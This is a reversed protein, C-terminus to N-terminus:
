HVIVRGRMGPHITCVYGYTGKRTFRFRYTGQSKTPSSKFRMRGRSAVNHPVSEDLFRWEVTDGRRVKLADPKFDIDVIRVVHTRASQAADVGIGTLTIAALAVVAQTRNTM